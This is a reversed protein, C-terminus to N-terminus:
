KPQGSELDAIMQEVTELMQPVKNRLTNFIMVADIHFYEHAIVDRMGM